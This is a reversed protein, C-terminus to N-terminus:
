LYLSYKKTFNEWRKYDEPSLLVQMKESIENSLNIFESSKTSDKFGPQEIIDALKDFLSELEPNAEVKTSIDSIEKTALLFKTKNILGKVKSYGYILGLLIVPALNNIVEGVGENTKFLEFKKIHKM